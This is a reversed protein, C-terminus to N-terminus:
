DRSCPRATPMRSRLGAAQPVVPRVGRQVEETKLLFGRFFSEGERQWLERWFHLDADATIGLQALRQRAEETLPV